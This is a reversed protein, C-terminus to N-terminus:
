ENVKGTSSTGEYSALKIFSVECTFQMRKLLDATFMFSGNLIGLFVPRDENMLDRNIQQAVKSIAKDIEAYPIYTRFTKDHLTIREM